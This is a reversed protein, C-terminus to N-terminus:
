WSCYCLKRRWIPIELNIYRGVWYWFKIIILSWDLSQFDKFYEHRLAERATLRKSPDLCLMRQFYVSFHMFYFYRIELCIMKLKRCNYVAVLEHLSCSIVESAIWWKFRSFNFFNRICMFSYSVRLLDVGDPELGGVVTALDQM